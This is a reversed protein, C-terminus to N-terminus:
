NELLRKLLNCCRWPPKTLTAREITEIDGVLWVIKKSRTILTYLLNKNLFSTNNSEPVYGILYDIESGQYRHVSVAFSLILSNTNLEKEEEDEIIRSISYLFTDGRKFKVSVSKYDVDVIIGEDGNTLNETYNNETHM